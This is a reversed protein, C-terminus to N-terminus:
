TEGALQKRVAEIAAENREIGIDDRIANTLQDTYENILAPALQQRTQALLPSDDPLPDAEIADLDVIYWGLDNPAELLKTSGEAMSFLLVLPPPINRNQQAMLQRRELDIDDIGPFPRDEGDLAERLSTEGRVESLVRDASERALKSGEFRRWGAVIEDRVEALPPAASETVQEVDYIVFLTGPVIEDLQPESEELQFATDLIQGLQPSPRSTPDNFVRGDALLQPTTTVDLGYADAVEVLATGSDVEEEIRASLDALAAARKETEIQQTLEATAEALSRAPIRTIADVRAITFGLATRAPDAVDGREANFVAEAVAPSASAALSERTVAQSNSVSFGAEQAAAELSTGGRIRAILANAADQTPVLFSSVDRTESAAFREPEAAYRAAIEAQTPALDDTINEAGFTAFRLVRREPLVYRARNESYFTQLQEDTPEGEPAFAESPILAIQGRRRELVLAAYQQAVKSPMQPAAFSPILLQQALLGDALDRRLIADTIGQRRLAADYTAQDFEGSLGRFAGIQLIESNILNDGARLGYKEAYGGIAYRNLLQDLVEEFGGQEIFAPMTITPNEGRVQELASNATSTLESTNIREDGVLAVRDGGSVGGFTSGTIDSAAFALAILAIFVFTIALGIKSQFFNRFFSIM